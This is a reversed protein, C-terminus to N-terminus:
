SLKQLHLSFRLKFAELLSGDTQFVSDLVVLERRCKSKVVSRLQCQEATAKLCVELGGKSAKVLGEVVIARKTVRGYLYVM